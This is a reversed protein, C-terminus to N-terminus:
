RKLGYLTYERFIKGGYRTAAKRSTNDEAMLAAISTKIGLKEAKVLAANIIMGGIGAFRYEPMVAVTKVILIENAVFALLFGVAKHDMEAVLIFDHDIMNFRPLYLAEFEAYSIPHFLFNNTFSAKSIEYMTQLMAHVDGSKFGRINVMESKKYPKIDKIPGRQSFYKKIPVFGLDTYVDNHWLPNSPEMPFSPSGDTYSVLRYNYWTSGDIPGIIEDHEALEEIYRALKEKGDQIDKMEFNGIYGKDKFIM